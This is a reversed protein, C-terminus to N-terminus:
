HPQQDNSDKQPRMNEPEVTHVVRNDLEESIKASQHQHECGTELDVDLKETLSLGVADNETEDRGDQRLEEAGRKTEREAVVNNMTM